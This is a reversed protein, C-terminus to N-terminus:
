PSCANSILSLNFMLWNNKVSSIIRTVTDSSNNVLFANKPKVFRVSFISHLIYFNYNTSWFLIIHQESSPIPIPWTLSCRLKFLQLNPFSKIKEFLSMCGPRSYIFLYLLFSTSRHFLTLIFLNGGALQSQFLESVLVQPHNM